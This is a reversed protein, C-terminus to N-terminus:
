KNRNRIWSTLIKISYNVLTYVLICIVLALIFPVNLSSMYGFIFPAILIGVGKSLDDVTYIKFPINKLMNANVPLGTQVSLGDIILDYSFKFGAKIIIICCHEKIKFKHKSGTDFLNYRIHEIVKGDLRVIRKGSFYGHELEVKHKNDELKIIWSLKAM